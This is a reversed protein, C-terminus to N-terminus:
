IYIIPTTAGYRYIGRFRLACWAGFPPMRWWWMRRVGTEDQAQGKGGGWGFASTAERWGKDDGVYV